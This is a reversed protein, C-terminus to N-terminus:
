AAEYIELCSNEGLYNLRSFYQYDRLFSIVNSFRFLNLQKGAVILRRRVTATFLM